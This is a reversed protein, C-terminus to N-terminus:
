ETPPVDFIQGPFILDPDRIQDRNAEYIVTFRIGEGYYRRAIRWLSNGPQVIVRSAALAVTAPAAREFPVELREAVQGAGDLLDVRLTYRGPPILDRPTLTWRGDADARADGIPRNDLYVRVTRGEEARGAFIVNGEEDYDISSLRMTGDGIGDEEEPSQLVRSPGDRGGMVVLPRRDPRDPVAVVVVQDSRRTEGDAGRASLTLEQDGQALPTEVIMTWEGRANAIATELPEGNAYLTVEAGPEARGALVATGRPDVRVVDFSPRLVTPADAAEEAPETTVAVDPAPPDVPGRGIMFVAAIVLGLAVVLAGIIFLMRM